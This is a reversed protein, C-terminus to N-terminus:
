EKIRKGDNTVRITGDEIMRNREKIICDGCVVPISGDEKEGGQIIAVKLKDLQEKTRSCLGCVVPTEQQKDSM